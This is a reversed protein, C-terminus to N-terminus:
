VWRQVDWSTGNSMHDFPVIHHVANRSGVVRPDSGKEEAVRLANRNNLGFWSIRQIINAHFKLIDVLM